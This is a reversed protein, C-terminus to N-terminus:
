NTKTRNSCGKIVNCQVLTHRYIDDHIVDEQKLYTQDIINFRHHLIVMCNNYYRLRGLKRDWIFKQTIYSQKM